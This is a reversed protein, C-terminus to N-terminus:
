RCAPDDVWQMLSRLWVRGPEGRTFGDLGGARRESCADFYTEAARQTGMIERVRHYLQVLRLRASFVQTTVRHACKTCKGTRCRWRPTNKELEVVHQVCPCSSDIAYPCVCFHMM